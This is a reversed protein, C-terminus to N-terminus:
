ASQEAKEATAEQNKRHYAERRAALYNEYREV